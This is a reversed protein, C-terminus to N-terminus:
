EIKYGWVQEMPIEQTQGDNTILIIKDPKIEKLQGSWYRGSLLGTLPIEKKLILVDKGIASRPLYVKKQDIEKREKELLSAQRTLRKQTETLAQNIQTLRGITEKDASLREQYDALKEQLNANSNSIFLYIALASLGMLLVLLGLITVVRSGPRKDKARRHRIDKVMGITGIIHDLEDRLYSLTISAHILQGSQTRLKIDQDVVRGEKELLELIKKRAPPNFYLLDIPRGLVEEKKYGLLFEASKNFEMIRGEADGAVIMDASDDLISELFALRKDPKLISSERPEMNM